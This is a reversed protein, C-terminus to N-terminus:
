ISVVVFCFTLDINAIFNGRISCAYLVTLFHFNKANKRKKLSHFGFEHQAYVWDIYYCINYTYSRYKLSEPRINIIKQRRYPAKKCIYGLFVFGLMHIFLGSILTKDKTKM